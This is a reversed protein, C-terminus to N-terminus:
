GKWHCMNCISAAEAVRLRHPRGEPDYHPDHCTVCTVEGTKSLPLSPNVDIVESPKALHSKGMPHPKVDHCHLCVMLSVAMLTSQGMGEVPRTEHCHTCTDPNPTHPTSQSYESQDHCNWCLATNYTKADYQRVTMSFEEIDCQNNHCTYCSIREEEDLPLDAGSEALRASMAEPLDLGTPHHGRDTVHCSICMINIDGRYRLMFGPVRISAETSEAHCATCAFFDPKHPNEGKGREMFEVFPTLIYHTTDITGHPQHCTVCTWNGDKDLKLEKPIELNPDINRPHNKEVAGHCFDCLKVVKTRVTSAGDEPGTPVSLHCFTCRKDGRRASHPNTRVNESGHCSACFSARGSLYGSGADSLFKHDIDGGHLKHCTRCLMKGERSLAFGEPINIMPIMDIPHINEAASHCEDCDNIEGPDAESGGIHCDYCDLEEAHPGSVPALEAFSAPVALFLLLAILVPVKWHLRMPCHFSM